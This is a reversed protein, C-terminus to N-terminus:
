PLSKSRALCMASLCYIVIAIPVLGKIGFLLSFNETLGGFAVGLLNAALYSSAHKTKQFCYSFIMSSFLIPLCATFTFGVAVIVPPWDTKDPISLFCQLLLTSFLAVYLYAVPIRKSKQVIM